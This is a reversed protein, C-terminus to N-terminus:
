AASNGIELKVHLHMLLELQQHISVSSGNEFWEMKKAVRLLLKKIFTM